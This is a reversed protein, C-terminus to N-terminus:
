SLRSGYNQLTARRPTPLSPTNLVAHSNLPHPANGKTTYRSTGGTESLDRALASM